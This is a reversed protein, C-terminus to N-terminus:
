HVTGRVMLPVLGCDLIKKGKMQMMYIQRGRQLYTEMRAPIVLGLNQQRGSIMVLHVRKLDLDYEVWKVVEGLPKNYILWIQSKENVVLDVLMRSTLDPLVPNDLVSLPHKLDKAVKTKDM